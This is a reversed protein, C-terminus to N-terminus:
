AKTRLAAFGEVDLNYLNKVHVRIHKVHGMAIHRLLEKGKSFIVDYDYDELVVISILNKKLGLVFMVDKLKLPSGLERQFTVIGIRTMNYREDDGLEICSCTKRRWRPYSHPTAASGPQESRQVGGFM